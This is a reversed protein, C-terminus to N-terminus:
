YNGPLGRHRNGAHQISRKAVRYEIEDFIAEMLRSVNIAIFEFMAWAM